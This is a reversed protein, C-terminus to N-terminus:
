TILYNKRPKTFRKEVLLFSAMNLVISVKLLTWQLSLNQSLVHLLANEFYKLYIIEPIYTIYNSNFLFM